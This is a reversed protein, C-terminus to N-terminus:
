SIMDLLFDESKPLFDFYRNWISEITDVRFDDDTCTLLRGSVAFYQFGLPAYNLTKVDVPFHIIYSLDVGTSLEYDLASDKKVANEDLWVAVDVDKFKEDNVFSGHLVSFIIEKRKEFLRALQASIQDKEEPLISFYKHKSM